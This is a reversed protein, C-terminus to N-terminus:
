FEDIDAYRYLKKEQDALCNMLVFKVDIQIREGPYIMQEYPKPKYTTKAAM